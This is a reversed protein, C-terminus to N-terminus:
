YVLRGICVRKYNEIEVYLTTDFANKMNKRSMFSVVTLNGMEKNFEASCFEIEKVSPASFFSRALCAITCILM